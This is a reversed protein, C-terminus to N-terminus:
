NRIRLKKDKYVSFKGIIESSYNSLITEIVRIKEKIREDELRLLLIGSHAWKSKYVLEGFDKDMTIILRKESVAINLIEIDSMRPDIDRVTKLDYPKTKLWEDVKQGVGVDILFKIAKQSL